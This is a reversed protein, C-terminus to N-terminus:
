KADDTDSSTDGSSLQDDDEDELGAVGAVTSDAKNGDDKEPKTDSLGNLTGSSEVRSPAPASFIDSASSPSAPAPQSISTQGSGVPGGGEAMPRAPYMLGGLVFGVCIAATIGTGMAVARLTRNKQEAARTAEYIRQTHALHEQTAIKDNTLTQIRSEYQKQIEAQIEKRQESFKDLLESLQAEADAARRQTEALRSDYTERVTNVTANSEAIRAELVAIASRHDVDKAALRTEMERRAADAKSNDELQRNMSQTRADEYAMNTNVYEQIEALYRDRLAKEEALMGEYDACLQNVTEQVYKNMLSNAEEKRLDVIARIDKDYELLSADELESRIKSLADAHARRYRDEYEQRAKAAAAEGASAKEKEWAERLATQRAEIEGPIAAMRDVKAQEAERRSNGYRTSSDIRMDLADHIEACKQGMLVTFRRRLTDINDQHLARLAENANRIVQTAHEAVLGSGRVDDLPVFTSKSAFAQDFAGVDVTLRIDDQYFVYKSAEEIADPSYDEDIVEDDEEEDDEGPRWGCTDCGTAPCPLGCKPCSIQDMQHSLGDKTATTPAAVVSEPVFGPAEDDDYGEPVSEMPDYEGFGLREDDPVQGQPEAPAPTGPAGPGETMDQSDEQGDDYVGIETCAAYVDTTENKSIALFWDYSRPADGREDFAMEGTENWSVLTPIFGAFRAPDTLFLFENLAELTEPDPIILFKGENMFEESAYVHVHQGNILQVFQGKDPDTKAVHADLGGIKDVYLMMALSAEGADDQIFFLRNARIRTLAASPVSESLVSSLMETRHKGGGAVSALHAEMEADAQSRAASGPDEGREAAERAAKVQAKREADTLGKKKEKKRGFM